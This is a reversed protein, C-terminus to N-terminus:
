GWLHSRPPRREDSTWNRFADYRHLTLVELLTPAQSLRDTVFATRSRTAVGRTIVAGMGAM